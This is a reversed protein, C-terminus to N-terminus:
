IPKHLLVVEQSSGISGKRTAHWKRSPVHRWIRGDASDLYQNLFCEQFGCKEIISLYQPLQEQPQSFALVQVLTTENSSYRRAASFAAEIGKFYRNLNQRKANMLYYSEGSGDLQNSVWFPAPTERGGHVQWRHYLIHVGPYPPSTLILRPNPRNCSKLFDALYEARNNLCVTRRINDGSVVRDARRTRTFFERAGATMKVAYAGIQAKFKEISPIERRGDLAWQASRLLVCRVLDQAKQSRIESAKSLAIALFERIPWTQPTDLNRLYGAEDWWSTHSLRENDVIHEGLDAFWQEVFFLEEYSYVRTKVRSVFSALSSIDTGVSLRSNARCEVLTTGGGVFPDVVLDGPDTLADVAAECFLPSFRAPYKYFDHTLGTVREKSHVASILADADRWNLNLRTLNRRM